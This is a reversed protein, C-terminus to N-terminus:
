FFCSLLFRSLHIPVYEIDAQTSVGGPNNFRSSMNGGLNTTRAAKEQDKRAVHSINDGYGLAEDSMRPGTLAEAAAEAELSKRGSPMATEM